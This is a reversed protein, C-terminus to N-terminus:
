KDSFNFSYVKMKRIKNDEAEPELDSATINKLLAQSRSIDERKVFTKSLVKVVYNQTEEYPPIGDYKNVAQEGANYAALVLSTNEYVDMLRALEATGAKINESPDFANVVDYNAATAPMLQMLGMAGKPSVAKPNYNSEAEIVAEILAVDITDHKGAEQAIFAAYPILEFDFSQVQDDIDAQLPSEAEIADQDGNSEAPTIVRAIVPPASINTQNPNLIDADLSIIPPPTKSATENKADLEKQLYNKVEKVEVRGSSDISIVTGYAPLAGFFTATLMVSLTTIQRM